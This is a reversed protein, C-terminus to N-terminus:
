QEFFEVRNRGNAKAKYLCTDAENVADAIAWQAPPEIAIGGISITLPQELKGDLFQHAEVRKRLNEAVVKGGVIDTHVLLVLFEEGGWRGLADHSRLSGRLLLSLERLVQDGAPHGHTDNVLKFFDLDLILVCLSYGYRAARSLEDDVRGSIARRNPLGTLEDTLSAEQVARYLRANEVAVAAQGALTELIQLDEETYANERAAQASMVGIVREGLMLPVHIASSTDDGSGVYSGKASVPDNEDRVLLPRRNRIVWGSPGETIPLVVDRYEPRDKEFIWFALTENEPRWLAIYFGDLQVLQATQEYIVRYLQEIDLSGSLAVGAKNLVRLREAMRASAEHLRANEELAEAQTSFLRANELAVATQGALTQLMVVDDPKYVDPEYSQVSIVGLVQDGLRMPVLIASQSAIGSGFRTGERFVPEDLGRVVLPEGSEIVQSCPGSGFPISTQPERVGLDLKFPLAITNEAPEWLAIYFADVKLARCCQQYVVEYLEDLELVRSVALGVENLVALRDARAESEGNLRVNDELARKQAAFLRANEVAVTTQTAVAQVLAVDDETYAGATYSQTSLVGMVRDGLLMPVHIASRSREGCGFTNGAAQTAANEATLFYPKANSLVWRSPGNGVAKAREVRQWNGRDVSVGDFIADREPDWISIYFADVSLARRLQDYVVQYLSELDLVRSVALGVENLVELRGARAESQQTLRGNEELAATQAAFLRANQFAVATQGAVTLLMQVDEDDYANRERSQVSMVGVVEGGQTMPVHVASQSEPAAGLVKGGPGAMQRIDNVIRPIGNRIVWSTLGDDLDIVNSYRRKGMDVEFPFSVRGTDRNYWGIYFCDATVVQTLQEYVVQYLEEPDLVRSVAVGIENIVALRDARAASQQLLRRNEDAASTEIEFLRANEVAVATHTAITQLLGIDQEDYADPEYSQASMVGVVRSGLLMPVHIASLSPDDTGFDTGSHQLRANEPTLVYPMRNRIVWGCPGDGVAAREGTVQFVGRDANLEWCIEDREADYLAIYFADRKLVRGVHEYVTEYLNELDLTSSVALSITNLVRLREARRANETHVRGNEGAAAALSAFFRVLHRDAEPIRRARDYFLTLAGVLEGNFVMPAVIVARFGAPRVIDLVPATRPDIEIDEFVSMELRTLPAVAPNRSTMRGAISLFDESLGVSALCEVSNSVANVRFVACRDAALLERAGQMIGMYVADLDPETILRAMIGAVSQLQAPQLGHLEFADIRTAHPRALPQSERRTTQTM